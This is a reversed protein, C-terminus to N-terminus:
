RNSHVLENCLSTLGTDNIQQLQQNEKEATPPNEKLLSRMEVLAGVVEQKSAELLLIEQKQEEVLRKLEEIEKEQTDCSSCNM